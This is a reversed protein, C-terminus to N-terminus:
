PNERVRGQLALRPRNTGCRCVHDSIGAATWSRFCLPLIEGLALPVKTVLKGRERLDIPMMVFHQMPLLGKQVKRSGSVTGQREPQTLLKDSHLRDLALHPNDKFDTTRHAGTDRTWHRKRPSPKM